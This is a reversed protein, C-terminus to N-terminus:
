NQINVKSFGSRDLIKKGMLDLTREILSFNPHGYLGGNEELYNAYSFPFIGIVRKDENALKYYLHLRNIIDPIQYHGNKRRWVFVQPVLFIKQNAFMKKTLQAHFWKVSHGKGKMDCDNWPGYCNFGVWNFEEPIFFNSDLIELFSFNIATAVNPLTRHILANVKKLNTMMEFKTVKSKSDYDMTHLNPEDMVYISIITSKFPSIEYLFHDWREEYNSHLRYNSDFFLHGYLMVNLKLDAVRSFNEKGSLWILNSYSKVTEIDRGNDYTGFYLLHNNGSELGMSNESHAEPLLGFIIIVCVGLAGSIRMM